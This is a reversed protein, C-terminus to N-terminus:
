QIDTAQAEEHLAQGAEPTENAQAGAHKVNEDELGDSLKQEIALILTEDEAHNKARRWQFEAELRRGVKWYADGLHDNITPDYPMLEVAQELYPVADKYRGMRYYVWGLSDTIYGDGPRLEVAKEIMELAEQLHTGQDAWAYGLYNLVYPHDPQFALAAQLDAEAKKWQKDQEYSMGRMYYLHWYDKGITGIKKEAKNYAKIAAKFNEDLRYITGIQILADLDDYDRVLMELEAVAEDSREQEYLIDAARRRANLFYGEDKSVGKYLAIAEDYRENRAAIEALLLRAQTHEPNLYLALRGFVRASEDSYERTLLRAMDYFAEAAGQDPTKVRIFLDSPEGKKAMELKNHLATNEPDSLLAQEFLTVASDNEGIHAYIDAIREVDEAGLDGTGLAQKLMDKIADKEGMFEAILIAHYLHISNSSLDTVDYQGLAASSWGYLLPMIFVSLGGEPMAQIHDAAAEYNKQKFGEASLFMHSLANDNEYKDTIVRAMDFARTYDGAGMALVMARKLLAPNEAHKQLVYDIYRGATKWDHHRQAFRGSLYSGAASSGAYSPIRARMAAEEMEAMDAEMGAQPRIVEPASKEAITIVNDYLGYAAAAAGFVCITLITKLNKM